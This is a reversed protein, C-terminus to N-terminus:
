EVGKLDYNDTPPPEVGTLEVIREIYESFDSISLETTSKVRRVPYGMVQVVAKSLFLGKFLSHLDDIDNGTEKSIIGLYLWYYNNQAVSRKPKQNTLYMTIEEGVNFKNLQHRYWVPSALKLSKQGAVSETVLAAFGQSNFTPLPKNKKQYTM